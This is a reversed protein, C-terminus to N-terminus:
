VNTISTVVKATTTTDRPSLGSSVTPSTVKSKKEEDHLIHNQHTDFRTTKRLLWVLSQRVSHITKLERRLVTEQEHIEKMKAVSSLSLKRTKPPLGKTAEIKAAVEDKGKEVVATAKAKSSKTAKAAKIKGDSKVKDMVVDKEKVQAESVAAQAKARKYKAIAELKEHSTYVVPYYRTKPVKTHIDLDM